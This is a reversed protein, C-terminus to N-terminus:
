IDIQYRVENLPVGRRPDTKTKGELKWGKGEYWKRSKDNTVLVWLTAMSYGDSKLTTLAKEMLKSGIGQGIYEPLVYIGYLEGTQLSTDEDRNVGATCWGVIQKNNEAILAHVGKKPNKIQKQWTLTKKAISL